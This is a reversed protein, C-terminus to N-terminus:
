APFSGMKWRIRLAKPPLGRWPPSSFIGQRREATRLDPNTELPVASRSRITDGDGSGSRIIQRISRVSTDTHASAADAVGVLDVPDPM